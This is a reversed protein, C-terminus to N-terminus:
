RRIVVKRSVIGKVGTLQLLYIGNPADISIPIHKDPYQDKLNLSFVTKGLMDIVDLTEYKENDLVVTFAGECPVPYLTISSGFKNENIGTLWSIKRVCSHNFDTIYLNGLPDLTVGTPSLEALTALGGDGSYGSINNGAVKMIIGTSIDVKEVLNNSYDAIFIDGKSNLCVAVPWHLGASTAPMSDGAYGVNSSGAVTSIIGTSATVKRIRNNIQDAIYLNNSTDVAIGAPYNLEANIALGNDGSFGANGNGAVTTIIGTSHTIKRIRHNNQDAIFVDGSRSIAIANPSSLMAQTALGSDGSWGASGNGGVESVITTIADVKRIRNSYTDTFYLNGSTDFAVSTPWKFSASLAPGGDGGFNPSGTGVVTNITDNSSFIERIVSNGQDAIYLNGYKDCVSSWPSYLQSNGAPGADGTYGPTGNGAITFIIQASAIQSFFMPVLFAGVLRFIVPRFFIM